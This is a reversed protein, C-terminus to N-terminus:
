QDLATIRELLCHHLRVHGLFAQRTDPDRIRGARAQLLEHAAGLVSPVREGQGAATLVDAAALYVRLPYEIGDVGQEAIWGLAEEAYALAEELRDQKLAVRALGAVDDIALKDQGVERRLDRARRYAQAAAELNGLEELALALYTLSYGEGIRDGIECEIALAEACHRRAARSDGLEHLTLGLNKLSLAEGGRDDIIRYLELSREYHEQAAHLDGLARLTGALNNVARAEGQRDGIGQYIALAEQGCTRARALDGLGDHVAVLNSLCLAQGRRDSLGRRIELAQQWLDRAREPDGVFYSVVGLNLLAEGRLPPHTHRRELALAGELRGRAEDFDGQRWHAIGWDVLGEIKEGAAGETEAWRVAEQAAAMAADYESIAEHYVFTRLAVAARKRGEGAAEALIRLETLDAAQGEREGMLSYVGERGLLLRYCEESVRTPAWGVHRLLGLARGFYDAAEANAFRAAARRGARGLYAIAQETEHALELHDAILGTHEGVRDRSQELLWKAVLAHYARRTRRLINEYTVDRLIAHKFAFEQATAFTSHERRFVIERGELSSLASRVHEGAKEPESAGIRAVADDWFTRGVVSGCQLITREALPLGDLRAQLVGVLSPPVRMETLRGAEVRWQEDGTVIVGDEVLMKILEEVYLPNGEARDLVLQCLVEPINVVKQLIEEVLRGSDQRSLRRLELCSYGHQSGPWPLTRGNGRERGRDLLSPRALCVMLLRQEVLRGALQNIVDLSSEDAWHLDELFIVTSTRAAMAQFFEGLYIIARDRLQRADDQVQRLHPSTDFDFGLLHGILHAKMQGTPDESLADGIVRGIGHELKGRMVAAPDSDQIRFRYALLDRILSYPQSKMQKTARGKFYCVPEPLGQLWEEFEYLLRSKGVGAEGTITVLRREGDVLAKRLEGQLHALEAERGIMRTDLGKVGRTSAHFTRPVARQVLYVQVPERKGKVAVAELAQVEFLGRVQCYTDHSILVGGAPAAQEMRSALNVADGMATYEARLDWGVEGVVVLGTNIGVRVNFGQIGREREVRAAYRQAGEVIELAALCARQADDEHAIPAGFFALIADGMLRALTGEHRYIPEILIDFAGDMIEMVDEPDLDEAMATSGKVDSFLITVIRREGAVDGRAARLRDAFEKPVLRQLRETM